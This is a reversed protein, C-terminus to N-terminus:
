NRLKASRIASNVRDILAAQGYPKQLVDIKGGVDGIGRLHAGGYGSAYIVPLEPRLQHIQRVAEPGGMGPMMVDMLLLDITSRNEVFLRVAEEGDTAALVTFGARTLLRTALERVAEEDEALLITGSGLQRRSIENDVTPESTPATEFPLFVHFSSGKGSVSEVRISGGHQEVIGYVVSLGLGTGREKPKTTFFPEFIHPLIEAPIGSGTDEVSIRVYRGSPLGQIESARHIGTWEVVSTEVTLRGGGPMSDRANVCLNLLVQEIQGRDVNAPCPVPSQRSHVEINAGILRRIMELSEAVLRNIDSSVMQLPQRRGFALLQSTLQAAKRAAKKVEGLAGDREKALTESDMALSTYGLIVQLLNNFDHAVGGALLGVAEMKQAQRLEAELLNHRDEAAKRETLDSMIFSYFDIQVPGSRHVLLTLSTAIDSGAANRLRVEGTWRGNTRAAPIVEDTFRRTDSPFLLNIFDAGFEGEAPRLGLANGAAPNLYILRLDPSAFAVFDATAELVSALRTKERALARETEILVLQRKLRRRARIWVLGATGGLALAAGAAKFWLTQWVYPMVVFSIIAPEASDVNDINAAQVEFKYSGPKLLHFLAYRRSDSEIWEPRLGLLRYRFRTRDANALSIGTFRIDIYGAGPPIKLSALERAPIVKTNKSQEASFPDIVRGGDHAGAPEYSVQEIHVRPAPRSTLPIELDLMSLGNITGALLCRRGSKPDSCETLCRVERHALGDSPLLHVQPFAKARGQVFAILETRPVAILGDSTGLWIRNDSMPCLDYVIVNPSLTEYPAADAVGDTAYIVPMKRTSSWLHGATDIHLSNIKHIREGNRLRIESFVGNRWRWLGSSETGFYVTGNPAVAMRRAIVSKNSGPFFMENTKGDRMEYLGKTTGVLVHGPSPEAIASIDDRFAPAPNNNAVNTGYIQFFGDSLAGALVGGDAHRQVTLVWSNTKLGSGAVQYAAAPSRWHFLGNGHTAIWFEGPSTEVIDNIIARALTTSGTKPTALIRNRLRVLGGGDTGIWINNENDEFVARVSNKTLGNEETFSRTTGDPRHLVVGDSFSSAWLNSKSDEFLGFHNPDTRQHGHVQELRGDQFRGFFTPTAIWLGGGTAPSMGIFSASDQHAPGIVVNWNTGDRVGLQKLSRSWIRGAADAVVNCSVVNTPAPPFPVQSFREGDWEFMRRLTTTFVLKGAQETLSQAHGGPFGKSAPYGTFAGNRCRALGNVTSIWLTDNSDVFLRIVGNNPLEPTNQTDFVAFRVGDFRVLGAFTGMWLYGDKTQVISTVSNQPLGDATDWVDITYDPDSQLAQRANLEIFGLAVLLCATLWTAASAKPSKGWVRARAQPPASPDIPSVETEKPHSM